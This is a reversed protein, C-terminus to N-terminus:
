VPEECRKAIAQGMRERAQEAAKRLPALPRHRYGGWEIIHAQPSYNPDGPKYVGAYLAAELTDPNLYYGISRKYRGTRVPALAQAIPLIIGECDALGQAFKRRINRKVEEERGEKTVTVNM